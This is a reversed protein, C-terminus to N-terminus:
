FAVDVGGAAWATPLTAAFTASEKRCAPTLDEGIWCSGIRVGAATWGPCTHHQAHLRIPCEFTRHTRGPYTTSIVCNCIRGPKIPNIGLSNGLIVPSM